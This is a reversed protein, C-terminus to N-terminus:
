SELSCQYKAVNLTLGRHSDLLVLQEKFIRCSLLFIKTNNQWALSVDVLGIDVMVEISGYWLLGLNGSLLQLKFRCLFSNHKCINFESYLCQLSVMHLGFLVKSMALVREIAFELSSEKSDKRSGIKKYLAKQWAYM